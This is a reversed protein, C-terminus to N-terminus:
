ATVRDYFLGVTRSWVKFDGQVTGDMYRDEQEDYPIYETVGLSRSRRDAQLRNLYTTAGRLIFSEKGNLYRKAKQSQVYDKLGRYQMERELENLTSLLNEKIKNRKSM